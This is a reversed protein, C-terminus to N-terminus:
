PFRVPLKKLLYEGLERHVKDVEKDTLTKSPHRYTMRLTLRKEERDEPIYLDILNVSELLKSKSKELTDKIEGYSLDEPCVITMDRFVPPFKSWPVFEIKKNKYIKYVEDLNIEAVFVNGKAHYSKKLKKHLSGIFGVFTDKIFIEAQVDMFPFRTSEKFNLENKLNLTNFFHEVMGKLDFFDVERNESAWNLEGKRGCIAIALRNQEEVQTELKKNFSFTKAVEFFRLDRNFRDLNIKISKLPGTITLTRMTDQDKSLPNAVPVMKEENEGLLLLEDKDVFSYTVCEKLGVGRAWQKIKYLFKYDAGESVCVKEFSKSVRPLTAPVKELGYFRGVEEVLDIERELDLRFSPPTVKTSEKDVPEISCGLRKLIDICFQPETDISLLSIAKKPRFVINKPEFKKAEKKVIGKLVRGGAFRHILYSARDIAREAGLIDVGREFRYGAESSIGLRRATKRIRSPNFVACELLVNKTNDNIESEYGGMIGALAIPMEADWILLDEESIEREQGDLTKFKIKKDPRAIKIKNGKLLERDFAHLPHGLELLVYNTIDVINNIPRFGMAILRYGMWSPSKKLKVGEIIRAFYLPCDEPDDIEIDVHAHEESEISEIDQKPFNLPLNFYASVERAIGLVSLCDARNPTIGIDFVTTDLDLADTLKTGPEYVSDLVMIGTHDDSLGLERESCIMGLSVEGRLKVKKIEMGGPLKAGVPAFAVYQGKAVNKAGCVVPLLEGTGIDVKCLSLKDANPHKTCEVVYGVVIDSIEEFPNIVEEVELGLMTLVHALKDIEGEYPTFEKLWKISLYM